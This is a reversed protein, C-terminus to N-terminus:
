DLTLFVQKGGHFVVLSELFLQASRVVGGGAVDQGLWHFDVDLDVGPAFPFPDSGLRVAAVFDFDLGRRDLPSGVLGDALDQGLVESDVLPVHGHHCPGGVVFFDDFDIDLGKEDTWNVWFSSWM